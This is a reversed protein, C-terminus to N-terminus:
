TPLDVSRAAAAANEDADCGPCSDTLAYDHPCLTRSARDAGPGAIWYWSDDRVDQVTPVLEARDDPGLDEGARWRRLTERNWRQVM